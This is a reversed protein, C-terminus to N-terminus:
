IAQDRVARLAAVFSAIGADLTGDNDLRTVDPGKPLEIAAARLRERLSEADERGRRAIRAALAEAAATVAVIHIPALHRRAEPIALRSANAVAVTGAARHAQAAAPIGYALGHARWSLIFAGEREAVDFADQTMTDHDEGIAQRTVVRRVFHFGPDGALIRRAGDILSDKGAGSPGVV